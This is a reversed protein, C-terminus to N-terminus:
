AEGGVDADGCVPCKNDACSYCLHCGPCDPGTDSGSGEPDDFVDGCELCRLYVTGKEPESMAEPERRAMCEALLAAASRLYEDDCRGEREAKAIDRILVVLFAVLKESM